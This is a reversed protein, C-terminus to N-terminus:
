FAPKGVERIKSYSICQLSVIYILNGVLFVSKKLFLSLMGIGCPMLNKLCLNYIGFYLILLGNFLRNVIICCHSGM